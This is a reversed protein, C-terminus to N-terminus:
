DVVSSPCLKQFLYTVSENTIISVTSCCFASQVGNWGEDHMGEDRERTRKRSDFRDMRRGDMGEEDNSM